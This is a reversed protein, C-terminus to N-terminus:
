RISSTTPRSRRAAFELTVDDIRKWSKALLPEFTKKDEDFAILTDYVGNTEFVTETKPDEYYSVGQPPDVLPFRLTDASKQAIAPFAMMAAASAAAVLFTRM